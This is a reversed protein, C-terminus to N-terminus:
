FSFSVGFDVLQTDNADVVGAKLTVGGMDYGFGFGSYDKDAVGATSVTKTFATVTMADMAYSISLATTDTDNNAAALTDIVFATTGTASRDTGNAAAVAPGNDNTTSVAKVTLGGASASVSMSSQTSTGVKSQGVGVSVATGGMDGSYSLGMASNSGSKVATNQSMGFTLGATSFQYGINHKDAQYAVEHHSSLSTLGVGAVNGVADKAAGGLDGMSIKGFAGSIYQSGVLSSNSQEARGSIGYAIGSDTEGTGTFSIRFRNAADTSDAVAATAGAETVLRDRVAQLSAIDTAIQAREAATDTLAQVDAIEIALDALTAGGLRATAEQILGDITKIEAAVAAAGITGITVAVTQTNYSHAALVGTAIAAGLTVILADAATTIKGYTTKAAVAASGETTVLGIRGTGSITLEAAAAGAMSVLATTALLTNKM